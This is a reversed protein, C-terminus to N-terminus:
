KKMRWSERIFVIPSEIGRYGNGALALSPDKELASDILKLQEPHGMNYQPMAGEWMFVRSLIPAATIGLTLNLEEQSMHLRHAILHYVQPM